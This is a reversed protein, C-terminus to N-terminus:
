RGIHEALFRLSEGVHAHWYPWDHVGPWEAYSHPIGLQTLEWDFARSQDALRDETGVDVSLAPVPAAALRAREALHAPERANWGGTDPGFARGLLPWIGRYRARVSDMSAMRRAPPAFPHAGAYLPAVVGSHSAAAAFLGPHNLALTIAGYGGMSLGAIGRHARDALTRYVSDVHAVLDHAVYDDYRQHEVCYTTSRSPLTTDSLCAAASQQVAWNTYWGDDGDPMVLIMERMGGAIFSDAVQDIAGLTVWDGENGTLGHLYYAVPFRRSRERAYSPPLYIVYHKEVGLAASFFSAIRVEGRPQQAALSGAVALVAVLLVPARHPKM